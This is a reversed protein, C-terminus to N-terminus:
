SLIHLSGKPTEIGQLLLIISSKLPLNIAAGCILGIVSLPSVDNYIIHEGLGLYTLDCNSCWRLKLM